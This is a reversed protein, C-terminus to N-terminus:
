LSFHDTLIYIILKIHYLIHQVLVRGVHLIQKKECPSFDYLKLIALALSLFSDLFFVLAVDLVSSM